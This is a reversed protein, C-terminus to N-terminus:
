PVKPSAEAALKWLAQEEREIRKLYEEVEAPFWRTEPHMHDRSSPQATRDGFLFAWNSPRWYDHWLRNKVRVQEVMRPSPPEGPMFAAAMAQAGAPSLNLGDLTLSPGPAPPAIFPLSRAAAVEQMVKQYLALAGNLQTLDPQPPKGSEFPAPAVLIIRPTRRLCLEIMAELAKRYEQVGAEGREMCEQRGFMLVVATANARSLQQELGGFHLPRDQRWVTDTEWALNRMRVQKGATAALLRAELSGEEMVVVAETGGLIALVENQLFTLKADFPQLDTRAPAARTALELIDSRDLARTHLQLASLSGRGAGSITLAPSMLRFTGPKVALSTMELGDVWLGALPQRADRKVSLAVPVVRGALGQAPRAEWEQEGLRAKVLGQATVTLSLTNGTGHLRLLEADVAPAADLKLALSLTFDRLEVPAGEVRELRTAQALNLPGDEALVVGTHLPPRPHGPPEVQAPSVAPLLCLFLLLCTPPRVSFM